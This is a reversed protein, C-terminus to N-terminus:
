WNQLSCVLPAIESEDQCLGLLTKLKYSNSTQTDRRPRTRHERDVEVRAVVRAIQACLSYAFSLIRYNM